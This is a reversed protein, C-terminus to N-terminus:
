RDQRRIEVVDGTTADVVVVTVQEPIEGPGLLSFSVAWNPRSELGRPLFRVM